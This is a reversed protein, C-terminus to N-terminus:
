LNSRFEELWVRGTGTTDALYNLLVPQWKSKSSHVLLHHEACLQVCNGVEYKGCQSGYVVRHLHLGPGPKGCFLCWEGLDREIVKKRVKLKSSDGGARGKGVCNGNKYQGNKENENNFKTMFICNPNEKNWEVWCKRNCFKKNKSPNTVFETACQRCVSLVPKSKAKRQCENSCYEHAMGNCRNKEREFVTSCQDCIIIKINNKTTKPKPCANLQFLTM